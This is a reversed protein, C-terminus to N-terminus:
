NIRYQNLFDYDVELGTGVTTPASICGTKEDFYIPDKFAKHVNVDYQRPYFEALIVNPVACSLIAHIQQQGHPSLAINRAQAYAAIKLYQTIGGMSCADPNLFAPHAKDILDRFGYITYENEGTSLPITSKTAFEKMGEYDDSMVPEEFWFPHFEEVMRSFELAEYTRYACNADLMLRIDDGLVERVAKVRERDEKMSLAGVKMKVNRAGWSVYLEMENQLDKVTKGDAYYGGAIYCPIEKRYGGLLQYLPIGSAKSRIDWLAMDLASICRTTLGRRGMFKTDWLGEWLAEVNLPDKGILKAQFREILSVDYSTGYGTINEDTEIVALNLENHTFAHKGNVIPKEKEWLFRQSYVATIKM